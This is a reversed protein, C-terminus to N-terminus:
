LLCALAAAVALTIIGAALIVILCGQGAKLRSGRDYGVGFGKRFGLRKGEAHGIQHALAIVIVVVIILGLVEM